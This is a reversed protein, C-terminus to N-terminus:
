RREFWCAPLPFDPLSPDAAADLPHPIEIGPRAGAVRDRRLFTVEIMPVVEYAACRIPPFTNNPHIHVIEFDQLLKRFCSSILRLGLKDYLSELNHFEVVIIRFQRLTAQTSEIIVDYESGEIDMQLICDGAGVDKRSMWDGLTTYVGESRDGLFTKEFDFLPHQVPPALVSYDALYCPIGMNAMALEFDASTAVGPSFCARIGDFDEPVLYGGDHESGIRVLDARSSSRTLLSFFDDLERDSSRRKLFWGAALFASRVSRNLRMPISNM